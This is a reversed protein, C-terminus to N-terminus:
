PSRSNSLVCSAIILMYAVCIKCFGFDHVRGDSADLLKVPTDRVSAVFCFSAPNTPTATPYWIFGLIPSPQRFTRPIPIFNSLNSALLFSRIAMRMPCLKYKGSDSQIKVEAQFLPRSFCSLSIQPRWPCFSTVSVDLLQFTRNECHALLSSGDPCRIVHNM